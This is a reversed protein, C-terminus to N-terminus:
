SDTRRTEPEPDGAPPRNPDEDEDELEFFQWSAEEATAPRSLAPHHLDFQPATLGQDSRQIRIWNEGNLGVTYAFAVPCRAAQDWRVEIGVTASRVAELIRCQTGHFEEIRKKAASCLFSPLKYSRAMTPLEAGTVEMQVWIKVTRSLDQGHVFSRFGGLDLARGSVPTSIADLNRRDLVDKMYLLAQLITSKGASNAGFLLTIPKLDVRVRESIGKFNEIEIATIRM